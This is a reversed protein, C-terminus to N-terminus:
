ELRGPPPSVTVTDEAFQSGRATAEEASGESPDETGLGLHSSVATHTFPRPQTPGQAEFIAASPTLRGSM